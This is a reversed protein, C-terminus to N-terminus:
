FPDLPHIYNNYPTFDSLEANVELILDIVPAAQKSQQLSLTDMVVMRLFDRVFSRAPHSSLSAAFIFFPFFCEANIVSWYCYM